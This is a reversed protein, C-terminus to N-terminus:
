RRLNLFLAYAPVRPPHDGLFAPSFGAAHGPLATGGVPRPSMFPPTGPGPQDSAASRAVMAPGSLMAEMVCCVDGMRSRGPADTRAGCPGPSHSCATMGGADERECCCNPLRAQGTMLCSYRIDITSSGIVLAASVLISMPSFMRRKSSQIPGPYLTDLLLIYGRVQATLLMWTYIRTPAVPIDSGM